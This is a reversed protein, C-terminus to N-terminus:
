ESTEPLGIGRSRRSAIGHAVSSTSSFTPPIPRRHHDSGGAPQAEQSPRQRNGGRDHDEVLEGLVPRHVGEVVSVHDVQDSRQPEFQREVGPHREGPALADAREHRDQRDGHDGQQQHGNAPRRARPERSPTPRITPPVSPLTISRRNRPSPHNPPATTSKTSTWHHGTNLRASAAITTPAPNSRSVENRAGHDGVIHRSGEAPLAEISDDRQHGVDTAGIAASRIASPATCTSSSRRWTRCPAGPSRHGRPWRCWPLESSCQGDRRVIGHLEGDHVDICGHDDDVFRGPQDDMGPGAVWVAGQDVSEQRAKGVDGPDAADSRGPM